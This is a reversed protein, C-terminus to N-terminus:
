HQSVAVVGLGPVNPALTFSSRTVIFRSVSVLFLTFWKSLHVLVYFGYLLQVVLLGVSM